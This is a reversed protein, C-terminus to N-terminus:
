VARGDLPAALQKETLREMLVKLGLAVGTLPPRKTPEKRICCEVFPNLYNTLDPNQMEEAVWALLMGVSFVDSSAQLPQGRKLEPSRYFACEQEHLGRPMGFFDFYFSEGIRSAIGFDILHFSPCSPPGSVTINDMKIDNHVFGKHHVQGLSEVVGVVSRLFRGVTCNDKYWHDYRVGAYDQIVAPPKNSFAHLLPAGGAGDLELMVKCEWLFTDNAWAGKLSKRIADRGQFTIREVRGFSGEGLTEKVHLAALEAGSLVPVGCLFDEKHLGEMVTTPKDVVLAQRLADGLRKHAPPVSKVKVDADQPSEPGSCDESNEPPDAEQQLPM